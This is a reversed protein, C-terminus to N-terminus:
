DVTLMSVFEAQEIKPGKVQSGSLTTLTTDGNQDFSWKGLGGDYDKTAMVADRIAARDKRGAKEIADLV